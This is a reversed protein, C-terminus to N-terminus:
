RNNKSFRRYLYFAAAMLAHPYAGNTFTRELTEADQELVSVYEDDDLHRKGTNQLDFAAFFHATNTMIAPNANFTGLSILKGATYGTEELLERRASEEPTEGSNMVGGPFEISLSKAGHRWQKVMLFREPYERVLVPITIVFDPADLVWFKESNGNPSVCDHEDVSFIKTQLLKKRGETRWILESEKM